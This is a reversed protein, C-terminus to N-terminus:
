YVIVVNWINYTTYKRFIWSNDLLIFFDFNELIKGPSQFPLKVKWSNGLFKPATLVKYCTRLFFLAFERVDDDDDNLQLAKKREETLQEESLVEFFTVAAGYIKIFFFSQTLLYFHLFRDTM